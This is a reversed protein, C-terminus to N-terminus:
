NTTLDPPLPTGALRPAAAALALYAAREEAPLATLHRRVTSWDGRSVPGTLAAAPGVRTVDGLAAAALDLYAALPVGAVAGVREVQGLLAVLHNSAIAAAAHYAARHEDAVRIPRGGLATALEEVAPDGALAMWAGRLRDAGTDPDPLPVLPHLSARRVHPALVDLTLSGALHIVLTAAVPEIAAAVEAVVGDPVSMVVVDVDCAAGSVDDGLDLMEAIRWGARELAIALSRGARGAGVIRVATM